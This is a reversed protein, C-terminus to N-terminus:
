KGGSRKRETVEVAGRIRGNMRTPARDAFSETLLELARRGQPTLLWANPEGRAAGVGVNEIVGRRELRALLKSAQAEDTIAEGRRPPRGDLGVRAAAVGLYSAVVFAMLSPALEVLGGGDQELLSTRIVSFVGGVVLEATLASSIGSRGGVVGAGDGHGAADWGGVSACGGVGAGHGADILGALVRHLRQRCEFGIVANVPSDLVLLRARQPEDDFFGLLAVLGARV